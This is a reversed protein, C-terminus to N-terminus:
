SNLLCILPTCAHIFQDGPNNGNFSLTRRIDLLDPLLICVVDLGAFLTKFILFGPRKGLNGGRLLEPQCFCHFFGFPLGLLSRESKLSVAFNRKLVLNQRLGDFFLNNGDQELTLFPHSIVGIHGIDVRPYVGHFAAEEGKPIIDQHDTLRLRQGSMDGSNLIRYLGLLLEELFLNRRDERQDRGMFFIRRKKDGMEALILRVVGLNKQRRRRAMM